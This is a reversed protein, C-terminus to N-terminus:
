QDMRFGCVLLSDTWKLQWILGTRLGVAATSVTACYLHGTSFTVTVVTRKRGTHLTTVSRGNFTELSRVAYLDAERSHFAAPLNEVHRVYPLVRLFLANRLSARRLKYQVSCVVGGSPVCDVCKRQVLDSRIVFVAVHKWVCQVRLV